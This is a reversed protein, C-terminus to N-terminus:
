PCAKGQAPRYGKQLAMGQRMYEGPRMRGYFKSQHCYYLGSRGNVWVSRKLDLNPTDSQRLSMAQIKEVLAEPNTHVRALLPAMAVLVTLVVIIFVAPGIRSRRSPM